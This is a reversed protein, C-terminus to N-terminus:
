KAGKGVGSPLDELHELSKRMEVIQYRIENLATAWTEQSIALSDLAKLRALLEGNAERMKRDLETQKEALSELRNLLTNADISNEIQKVSNRWHLAIQNSNGSRPALKAVARIRFEEYSSSGKFLDEFEAAKLSKGLLVRSYEECRGKESKNM